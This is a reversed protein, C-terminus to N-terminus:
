VDYQQDDNQLCMGYDHLFWDKTQEDMALKGSRALDVANLKAKLQSNEKEYEFFMVFEDRMNLQINYTIYLSAVGCMIWAPGAGMLGSEQEIIKDGILTYYFVCPAISSLSTFWLADMMLAGAPGAVLILLALTMSGIFSPEKLGMAIVENLPVGVCACTYLGLLGVVSGSRYAEPYYHIYGAAALAILYSSINFMSRLFELQGVLASSSSM